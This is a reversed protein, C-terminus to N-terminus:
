FSWRLGVRAKWRSRLDDIRFINTDPYLVENRLTYIPLGDDSTGEYRVPDVTGYPVYEVVGSDNDIMNWFNFIDLSIQFSSRGPIPINQRFSLDTQMFYPANNVNRPAVGGAYKDIGTRQLYDELQAWTGNTIVVDDAGTPVYMLDNYGYGDNNISRYPWAAGLINTWPKGTQRNWFVSVTTSWRTARNFEYNLNIIGRHEVQFDSTSLVSNNPDTGENYQWNSVARSSTGDNIANSEGWAYSVSGWFPQEGYPLELKLIFNLADGKDSNLLYYAGTFEESVDEYMPRGDFPISAGTQEINLNQYDIENASKAYIVEATAVMRQWPLRYDYALNARWTQPFNFDPDIANIDQQTAGGINTPQDFPDPNFPIGEIEAELSTQRLGTRAFSNSLWVFPTRGSFLGAGGRLQSTANGTIDWNFGIRPSWLINGSPFDSTDVGFTEEALPNYGPSTPFIPVDMRLGYVLSFNSKVRWTDGAYLSIQYAKFRDSPDDPDNPYTHEFAQASGAYYADLDAFEYSGYGNQIYLNDITYFENHTGIVIEHNGTFFSFDNTLEIIDQDLNNHTSYQETGFEWDGVDGVDIITVHPFPEVVGTRPGRITQYTARLENFSSGFVANWQGVLSNVKTNIDYGESPWEYDYGDPRNIVNSADMYNYRATITNAQNLNFDFRVFFRDAPRNSSVQALTGPDYGYADQTFQRLQEATDTFNCAGWCNGSSGDLSWGTPSEVEATTFNTFFFVKDKSLPGGLSFGFEEDKFTGLEGLEDPGSGVFSDDSYYGYLTGHFNNTGSRTIANVSGGTFGGQRVDFSSTVLQLEQVVDLQIPQAASQGGPTGSHALGFVDNNVSGDISINNYRPNRGSVSLETNDRDPSYTSFMPNTRAMDFLNREVSPLAELSGQSVSSAVGMKTPAILPSSEGVVQIEGTAAELQLQISLNTGEGLRISVDSLTHTKFGSLSAQVQYPGGAKLNAMRFRGEVDTVTGYRNGTAALTAVVAVGPLPDQNPDVVVGSMSGTTVGQAQVLGAWLLTCITLCIVKKMMVEWKEWRIPPIM